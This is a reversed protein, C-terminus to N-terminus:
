HSHLAAPDLEELLQAWRRTAADASFSASVVARARRGLEACQAPDAVLTRVLAALDAGSRAVLQLEDPLGLGEFAGPTGAVPLGHAMGDLVKLKVGGGAVLPAVLVRRDLAAALDDAYGHLTIGPVDLEARVDDPCHGVVHLV